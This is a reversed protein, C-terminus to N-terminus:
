KQLKPIEKNFDMQLGDLDLYGEEDNGVNMEIAPAEPMEMEPFRLSKRRDQIEELKETGSVGLFPNFNVPNSM